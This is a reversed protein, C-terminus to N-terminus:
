TKVFEILYFCCCFCMCTLNHEVLYQKSCYNCKYLKEDNTHIRMHLALYRHTTFSRNCVVCIFSKETCITSHSQLHEKLSTVLRFSKGCYKCPYLKLGKNPSETQNAIITTNNNFSSEISEVIVSAQENINNNDNNDNNDINDNSYHLPTDISEVTEFIEEKLNIENACIPDSLNSNFEIKVKHIEM